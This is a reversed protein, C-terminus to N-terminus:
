NIICGRAVILATNFTIQTLCCQWNSTARSDDTTDAVAVRLCKCFTSPPYVQQPPLQEMVFRM